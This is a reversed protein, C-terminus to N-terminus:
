GSPSGPGAPRSPALAAVIATPAELALRHGAGTVLEFHGDRVTAAIRQGIERYALDREGALVAVPLDVSDLRAWLPALTGAGFARLTGAIQRATLRRTDAAAADQVWVPDSAFLPTERWRAIFSEVSGREVDDALAEDARQRRARQDGDEIGASTSVLVLRSVREPMATAVHLAVRGGMSYGCLIFREADVAAALDLAGALSLPQADALELALPSYRESDLLAAVRDWHRATGGFGHLM